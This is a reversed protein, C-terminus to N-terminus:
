LHPHADAFLPFLITETHALLHYCVLTNQLFSALFVRPLPPVEAFSCTAESFHSLTVFTTGVCLLLLALLAADPFTGLVVEWVAVGVGSAAVTTTSSGYCGGCLCSFVKTGAVACPSSAKKKIAWNKM